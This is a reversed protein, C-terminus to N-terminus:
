HYQSITLFIWVKLLSETVFNSAAFISVSIGPNDARVAFNKDNQASPTGKPRLDTTM